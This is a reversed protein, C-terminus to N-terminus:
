RGFVLKFRANRRSTAEASVKLQFVENHKKMFSEVEKIRDEVPPHNALYAGRDPNKKEWADVRNLLRILARSDYGALQLSAAAWRDAELEQDKGYKNNAIREALSGFYQGTYRPFPTLMGLNKIFPNPKVKGGGDKVYAKIAHEKAVHGLEHCILAALEDETQVLDLAGRTVWIFGGPTAYAGVKPSELIGVHIGAWLGAGDPASVNIFGAMQNLYKLQAKIRPDALNAPKFENVLSASVGRGIYYQQEPSFEEPAEGQEMSERISTALYRGPSVGSYVGVHYFYGTYRFWNRSTLGVAFNVGRAVSSASGFVKGVGGGINGSFGVSICGGIAALALCLFFGGLIRRLVRLTTM